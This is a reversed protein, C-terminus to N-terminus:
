VRCGVLALGLWSGVGLGMLWGRRVVIGACCGMLWWHWGRGRGLALCKRGYATVGVGVWCGSVSVGSGLWMCVDQQATPKRDIASDSQAVASDAFASDAKATAQPGHCQATPERRLPGHRKHGLPQPGLGMAWPMQGKAM